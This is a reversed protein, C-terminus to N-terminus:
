YIPQTYNSDWDRLFVEVLQKRLSNISGDADQLIFAVGATNNFYDGSWNSTGIYAHQDTVMYKSHQVRAYEIQAQSPTFAPVKFLRVSINVKTRYLKSLDNLSKLFTYMDPDSHNWRSALLRLDVKKNFAAQRLEDDIVPWFRRPTTYMYIPLYDMVSIYIFERANRIVNVLADIDNTRGDPCFAKPSSSLYVYAQTQNYKLLKPDALNINTSYEPPWHAPIGPNSDSALYWYVQFLKEADMALVPCNEILVGIEKIQTYSRWDLNASGIYVHKGDIVWMKTHMVGANLLKNINLTRVDAGASALKDTDYSTINQVIKLDVSANSAIGMLTTFIDEGEADSSDFYSTDRALLTWYFSALHVTKQARTLLRKQAMYTSLLSIQGPSYTLNEAMSEVLTFICNDDSSFTTIFNNEKTIKINIIQSFCIQYIILVLAGIFAKHFM